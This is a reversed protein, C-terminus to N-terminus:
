LDNGRFRELRHRRWDFVIIGITQDCAGCELALGDTVSAANVTEVSLQYAEEIVFYGDDHQAVLIIAGGAWAPNCIIEGANEEALLDFNGGLRDHGFDIRFDVVGIRSLIFNPGVEDEVDCAFAIAKDRCWCSLRRGLKKGFGLGFEEESDDINLDSKDFVS